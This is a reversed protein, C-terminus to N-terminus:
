HYGYSALILFTQSSFVKKSSPINIIEVENDDEGDEEEQTDITSEYLMKFNIRIGKCKSEMLFQVSEEVNAWDDPDDVDVDIQKTASINKASVLAKSQTLKFSKIECKEANAELKQSAQTFYEVCNWDGIGFQKNVSLMRQSGLFTEAVLLFRKEEKGNLADYQAFTGKFTPSMAERVTVTSDPHVLM